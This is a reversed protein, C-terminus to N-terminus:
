FKYNRAGNDDDDIYKGHEKITKFNIPISMEARVPKGNRTGPKWYKMMSVVRVAEADLSPSVSKLVRVGSVYGDMGVSFGILVEGTENANMAEAPYMLEKLIFKYLATEGGPYEPMVIIDKKDQAWVNGASISALMIFIFTPIIKKM